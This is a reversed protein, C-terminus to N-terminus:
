ASEGRMGGLALALRRRKEARYAALASMPEAKNLPSTYRALGSGDEKFRIMATRSISRMLYRLADVEDDQQNPAIKGNDAYAWSELGDWLRDLKEGIYLKREAFWRNILAVDDNISGPTRAADAVPLGKERLLENARSQSADASWKRVRLEGTKRAIWSFADRAAPGAQSYMDFIIIDGSATRGGLLCVTRCPHRTDTSGWDIGGEVVTFPPLPRNAPWRHATPDLDPFVQGEFAAWDGELYVSVWRASHTRALTPAYDPPLYPNDYTTAKIFVHDPLQKGERWPIYFRRKVWGTAPNTAAILQYRPHRPHDTGYQECSRLSCHGEGTTWRLRTDLGNYTDEDVQTLEDIAILGFETSKHKEWDSADALTLTSGNPFRYIHNSKDHSGGFQPSYLEPPCIKLWEKETSARLSKLTARLLLVPIGPWAIMKAFIHEVLARSKGPGVAGGFLVYRGDAKHFEAQKPTPTYEHTIVRDGLDIDIRWTDPM